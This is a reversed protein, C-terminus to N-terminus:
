SRRTIRTWSTPRTLPARTKTLEVPGSSTQYEAIALNRGKQPRVGKQYSLMETDVEWGAAALQEDILQRTEIENLVISGEAKQAQAITNQIHQRPAKEAQKQLAELRDEIEQSKAEAEAALDEAVLRLQAEAAAEAHAAEIESVSQKLANRLRQIEAEIERTKQAPNPPPIFPSPKFDLDKGFTCHFWVSLHRAYQLNKLAM